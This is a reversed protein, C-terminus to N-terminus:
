IEIGHNSPFTGPVNPHARYSEHVERPSSSPMSDQEQVHASINSIRSLKTANKQSVENRDHIYEQNTYIEPHVIETRVKKTM